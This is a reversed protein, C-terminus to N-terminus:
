RGDHAEKNIIEYRKAFWEADGGEIYVSDKNVLQQGRSKVLYGGVPVPQDIDPLMLLLTSEKDPFWQQKIWIGKEAWGGQAWEIVEATNNGTWQMAEVAPTKKRVVIMPM